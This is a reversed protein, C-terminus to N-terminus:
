PAAHPSAASLRNRRSRMRYENMTCGVTRKFLRLFFPSSHHGCMQPIASLKIAPNAALEKARELQVAHIEDVVSRGATERFRKEALRRSCGFCELAEAATLGSTARERIMDLAETAAHYFKASRRTSARSVVSVSGFTEHLPAASPNGLLEEIMEVAREGEAMFDHSVSSLMPRLNECFFEDNDTGIIMLDEPAHLGLVGAAEMVQESLTDAATFVGIPTPLDGLWKALSRVLSERDKFAHEPRFMHVEHAGVAKTFADGRAESWFPRRPWAVYAYSKMDHKLLEEAAANATAAADQVLTNVNRSAFSPACDIFVTPQKAFAKVDLLEPRLKVADVICGDPRWYRIDDGIQTPSIIDLRLVSWGRLRAARCAGLAKRQSPATASSHFYAIFRKM